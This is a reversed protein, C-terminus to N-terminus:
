LKAHHQQEIDDTVTGHIIDKMFRLHEQDFGKFQNENLPEKQALEYLADIYRGDSRGIASNLEYDTHGFSDVLAIADPRISQLLLAQAPKIYAAQDPSFHGSMIFSGVDREIWSIAFLAALRRMVPAVSSNTAELEEVTMCFASVISVLAHAKSVAYHAVLHEMFGDTKPALNVSTAMNRLTTAIEAAARCQHARLLMPLSGALERASSAACREELLSEFQVLYASVGSPKEESGNVIRYLYKAAQQTLLWNDGEPTFSTMSAAYLQPIGSSMSFGHGGCARRCEEIGDSAITTCLSKLASSTAHLSAAMSFDGDEQLKQAESNLTIMSKGQFYLAYAAALYPLLRYQLSPYDLVAREKGRSAGPEQQRVATYRLAITLAASLSSYAGSVIAARVITM